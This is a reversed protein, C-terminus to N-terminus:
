DSYPMCTAHRKGPKEEEPLNLLRDSDAEVQRMSRYMWAPVETDAIPTAKAVWYHLDREAEDQDRRLRDLKWLGLFGILAALTAAIQALTSLATALTDTM